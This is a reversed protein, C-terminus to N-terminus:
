SQLKEGVQREHRGEEASGRKNGGQDGGQGAREASRKQLVFNRQVKAVLVYISIHLYTNEFIFSLVGYVNLCKDM